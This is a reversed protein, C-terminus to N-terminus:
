RLLSIDCFINYIYFYPTIGGKRGVAEIPFALNRLGAGKRKNRKGWIKKRKGKSKNKNMITKSSTECIINLYKLRM